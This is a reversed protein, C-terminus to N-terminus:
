TSPNEKERGKTAGITITEKLHWPLYFEPNVKGTSETQYDVGFIARITSCNTSTFASHISPWRFSRIVEM